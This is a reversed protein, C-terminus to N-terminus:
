TSTGRWLLEVRAHSIIRQGARAQARQPADVQSGSHTSSTACALMLHHWFHVKSDGLMYSDKEVGELMKTRSDLSRWPRRQAARKKCKTGDSASGAEINQWLGRLSGVWSYRICSWKGGQYVEWCLSRSLECFTGVYQVYRM